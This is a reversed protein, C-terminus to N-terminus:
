QRASSGPLQATPTLSPASSALSHASPALWPGCAPESDPGGANHEHDLAVLLDLLARVHHAYALSYCRRRGDVRVHVLGAARLAALHKSVTPQDLGCCSELRQVDCEGNSLADLLGRRM